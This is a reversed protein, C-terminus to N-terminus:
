WRLLKKIGTIVPTVVSEALDTITKGILLKVPSPLGSSVWVIANATAHGAVPGLVATVAANMVNSAAWVAADYVKQHIYAEMTSGVGAFVRAQVADPDAEQNQRLCLLAMTARTAVVATELTDTAGNVETWHHSAILQALKTSQGSDVLQGIVPSVKETVTNWTDADLLAPLGLVPPLEAVAACLFSRVDDQRFDAGGLASKVAKAILKLTEDEIDQPKSKDGGAALMISDYNSEARDQFNAIADLASLADSISSFKSIRVLHNALNAQFADDLEPIPQHQLPSVVDTKM